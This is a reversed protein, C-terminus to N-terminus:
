GLMATATALLEDRLSDSLAAELDRVLEMPDPFAGLTWRAFFGDDMWSAVEPGVPGDPLPVLEPCARLRSWPNEETFRRAADAFSSASMQEVAPAHPSAFLPHLAVLDAWAGPGGPARHSALCRQLMRDLWITLWLAATHTPAPNTAVGLVRRCLDPIVGVGGGLVVQETGADLNRLLSADAGDRAVLFTVATRHSQGHGDLHHARGGARVGFIAWEEPACFGALVDFPHASGIPMLGVLVDDGEPQVHIAVNGDSEAAAAAEAIPLVSELIPDSRSPPAGPEVARLHPHASSPM